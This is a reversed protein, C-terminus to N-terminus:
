SLKHSTIAMFPTIQRIRRVESGPMLLLSTLRPLIPLPISCALIHNNFYELTMEEGLMKMANIIQEYHKVKAVISRSQAKVEWSDPESVGVAEWKREERSLYILIEITGKGTKSATKRRDFIVKVNQKM